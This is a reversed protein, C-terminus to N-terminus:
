AVYAKFTIFGGLAVFVIGAGTFFVGNTILAGGVFVPFQPSVIRFMGVATFAWGLATITSRWDATFRPHANLIALGAGLLLVGTLYVFPYASLLQAALDRYVPGNALMGIGVTALVPGILRAATYSPQAPQPRADAQMSLAPEDVDPLRDVGHSPQISRPRQFQMDQGKAPM